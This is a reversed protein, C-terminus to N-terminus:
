PKVKSLAALDHVQAVDKYEDCISAGKSELARLVQRTTMGNALTLADSITRANRVPIEVWLRLTFGASFRDRKRM